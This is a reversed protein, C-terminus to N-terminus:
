EVERVLVAGDFYANADHRSQPDGIYEVTIVVEVNPPVTKIEGLDRCLAMNLGQKDDWIKGMMGAAIFHLRWRSADVALLGLVRTHAYTTFRVEGIFGPFVAREGSRLSKITDRARPRPTLNDDSM